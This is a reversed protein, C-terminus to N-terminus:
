IVNYESVSVISNNIPNIFDTKSLRKFKDKVMRSNLNKENCSVIIIRNILHRYKYLLESAKTHIKSLNILIDVHKQEEKLIGELQQYIFKYDNFLYINMFVDNLGNIDMNFCADDYISKSNTFGHFSSYKNNYLYMNIFYSIFEGGIGILNICGSNYKDKKSLLQIVSKNVLKAIYPVNQAFSNISKYIGKYDGNIFEILLREKNDKKTEDQFLVTDGNTYYIGSKNNNKIYYEIILPHSISNLYDITQDSGIRIKTLLNNNDM